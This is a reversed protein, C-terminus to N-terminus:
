QKKDFIIDTFLGITHTDTYDILYMLNINKKELQIINAIAQPTIEHLRWGLNYKKIIRGILGKNSGIVPKKFFAAYGLVGSSQNTHIYPILIYDSTKCLSFLYSYDCFQNIVIIQVKKNLKEVLDNFPKLINDDIRGAFIFCLKPLLKLPLLEISKLITLTGKRADMAGFHFYITKNSSIKLETHLDNFNDTYETVCVPDPLFFFKNTQYLKNLYRASVNDNLIFIREIKSFNVM